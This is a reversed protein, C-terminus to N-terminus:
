LAVHDGGKLALMTRAETRAPAHCLGKECLFEVFIGRPRCNSRRRSIRWTACEQTVKQAQFSAL